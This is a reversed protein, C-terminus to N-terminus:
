RGDGNPTARAAPAAGTVRFTATLGGVMVDFAGPELVPRGDRGVYRLDDASLTFTLTRSQGPELAVKRFARLRRVAPSVTAFHQRTFLLVAEEGAREGTNAVTVRVTLSDAAGIATKGLELDRYAYTTYSLGHGFEWQPNFGGPGRDFGSNTTEAYRHDYTM